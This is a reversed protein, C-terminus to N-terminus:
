RSATRTATRRAPAAREPCTTADLPNLVNREHVLDALAAANSQSLAMGFLPTVNPCFQSGQRIGDQSHANALGTIFGDMERQSNRSARRYHTQITRYSGALDAQFKRVFSNYDSDRNCSLAAVMLQSQLARLDFAAREAPQVCAQALAPGAFLVAGLAALTTRFTKNRLIM